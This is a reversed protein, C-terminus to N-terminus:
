RKNLRSELVKVGPVRRNLQNEFRQQLTFRAAPCDRCAGSLCVWVTKHSVRTIEVTGGHASALPRVYRDLVLAALDALAQQEVGVQAAEPEAQRGGQLGVSQASLLTDEVARRVKAGIHQWDEACAARTFILGLAGEVRTLVSRSVLEALASDPRDVFPALDHPYSTAVWRITSPHDTLEPHFLVRQQSHM